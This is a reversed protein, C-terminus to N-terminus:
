RNARSGEVHLALISEPLGDSWGAHIVGRRDVLICIDGTARDIIDIAVSATGCPWGYAGLIFDDCQGDRNFDYPRYFFCGPVYDTGNMHYFTRQLSERASPSSLGNACLLLHDPDGFRRDSEMLPFWRAEWETMPRQLGVPKTVPM